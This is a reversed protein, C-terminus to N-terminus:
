SEANQSGTELYPLIDKDAVAKLEKVAAVLEDPSFVRSFVRSNYDLM